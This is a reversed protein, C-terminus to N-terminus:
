PGGTARRVLDAITKYAFQGALAKLAGAARPNLTKVERILASIEAMKGTRAAQELKRLLERPLRALSQRLDTENAPPTAQGAMSDGYAYTIGLHRSMMELLDNERFPKRLFDDCGAGLLQEREEEFSSATLALIITERGRPTGKIRRTAERGDMGPLRMDMWVLHPEWAQWTAIAEEGERAERLEFGLPQLLKVLLHRSNDDDDVVLVRYAPQGPALGLVTRQEREFEEPLHEVERVKIDFSFVSGQHLASRVTIAGGMLAVFQRSIALGLGTGEPKDKGVGTQSFAEFLCAQDQPAIGPGTDAVEFRLRLDGSATGPEKPGITVKVGGQDTFKVANSLLNILVQRLKIKDTRIHHPTGPAMEFRLAINKVRAKILFMDEVEQLMAHLDFDSPNVMARNAEIRSLELVNNILTLLHEGSKRVISLDEWQEPLLPRRGTDADRLLLNSYGLISNLPSRLEHSMNALFSSKAQNATEAAEKAQRLREEAQKRETIDRATVVRVNAGKFPVIRVHTEIDFVGGDKRVAELETMKESGSRVRQAVLDLSGPTLLERVPKGILEEHTYGFLGCAATNIDLVTQGDHIVVAETTAMSLGRFREESEKLAHTRESVENELRHRHREGARIRWIFGTALTGMVLLGLLTYFWWTLWFPSTVVVRLTAEQEGALGDNNSGRVRLTYVGGPLGSYRGWNLRGADFWERDWGELIYRYGNKEAHTYNLCAAEFEFFNERWNLHLEKLREPARDLKIPERGRTLATIFTPPRFANDEIRDPYFATVGEVGGFWLRGDSAKLAAGTWNVGSYVGEGKEFVRSRHNRPDFRILKNLAGMWLRGQQDEVINSVNDDPFLGNRQNFREFKGTRKDFRNLGAGPTIVWFEGFATQAIGRVKNGGISTPDNPDHMFRTFTETRKDFRNLGSSTGGLWLVDPDDRDQVLEWIGNDGISDPDAPDHTFTLFHKTRKNFKGLGKEFTTIWLIDTDRPDEIMDTTFWTDSVKYSAQMAGSRADLAYLMGGKNDETFGGVWLTGDSDELIPSHAGAPMAFSVFDDTAKRYKILATTGWPDLWLDAQRDEYIRFINNIPLSRPNNPENLYLTFRFSKPDHKNTGSVGNIWIVGNRDVYIQKLQVGKLSYPRDMDVAYHTIHGTRTDLASVKDIGYALWLRGARDETIAVIRNAAPSFKEEAGGHFHVFRGTEPDFRNLGGSETGIWLVGERDQFLANIHNDSLGHSAVPDHMYRTFTGTKKEFRNLGRRTGVWMNGAEGALVATVQNDSLSSDDAPNHLFHTFTDTDKDLRNLGGDQTGVWLHGVSDQDMIQSVFATGLANSSITRGDGPAHRYTKFAYTGKDYLCLGSGVTAIWIRGAEDEMLGTITPDPLQSNLPTFVRATRGDWKALGQQLGIWFFGDRDQLFGGGRAAGLETLASEFKLREYNISEGARASSDHLAAFFIGGGLFLLLLRRSLVRGHPWGLRLSLGYVAKRKHVM